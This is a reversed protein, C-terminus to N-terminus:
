KTEIDSVLWGSDTHVMTVLARYPTVHHGRRGRRRVPRPLAAGAGTESSAQVVSRGGGPGGAPGSRSSSRDAGRGRDRPVREAFTDTMKTTAEDIQADFDEYGYSLIEATSQAAAEVASRAPSRAPSWRATPQLRGPEDDSWLYWAEAGLVGAAVARRVVVASRRSTFAPQRAAATPEREPLEAAEPDAADLLRSPPPPEEVAARGRPGRTREASPEDVPAESSRAPGEVPRARTAAAPSRARAAPPTAPASSPAAPRRSATAM